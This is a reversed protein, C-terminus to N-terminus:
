RTGETARCDPCQKAITTLTRRAIRHGHHRRGLRARLAAHVPQHDPCLTM